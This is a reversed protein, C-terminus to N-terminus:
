VAVGVVDGTINLTDVGTGGAVTDAATVNATLNITDAGAGGTINYNVAQGANITQGGAALQYLAATGGVHTVTANDSFTIVGGAANVATTFANYQAATLLVNNAGATLTEIDTLTAGTLTSAANLNLTDGDAGGNLSGTLIGGANIVDAGAGATVSQAVNGLTVTDVLGNGVYNQQAGTGLTVTAAAASTNTVTLQALDAMTANGTSGAALNINSINAVATTQNALNLGNANDTIILTNVGGAGDIVSANDDAQANTANITDNGAGATLAGTIGVGTLTNFPQANATLTAGATGFGILNAQNFGAALSSTTVNQLVMMDRVNGIDGGAITATALRVDGGNSASYAVVVNGYDASGGLNFLLANLAQSDAATLTASDLIILEARGNAAADATTAPLASTLSSVTVASAVGNLVPINANGLDALNIVDGGSGVTFDAITDVTTNTAGAANNNWSANIRDAGTGTTIKDAGLGGTIVDDGAGAEITDNGNAGVLADAKDGGKITAGTNAFMNAATTQVGKAASADYTKLTGGAYTLTFDEAGTVTVTQLFNNPNVVTLTNVNGAAATGLLNVNLNEVGQIDLQGVRDANADTSSGVNVTVTNSTNAALTADKINAALIGNTNQDGDVNVVANDQLNNVTTTVGAAGWGATFGIENVNGAKSVDMTSNAGPQNNIRIAEINSVVGATVAGQIAAFTDAALTDKGEGGDIKDTGTLNAGFNFTDNGKGGTVTIADASSLNVSLNGTFKSADVTGTGAAGAFDLQNVIALSKDGTVNLTKLTSDNNGDRVNLANLVSAVNM